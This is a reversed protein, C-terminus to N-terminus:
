ILRDSKNWKNMETPSVSREAPTKFEYGGEPDDTIYFPHYRSPRDPDQGGEVVFTYTQGRVVTVEPILLGNIFWSVGWGQNGTMSLYPFDYNFKSNSEKYVKLFYLGTIANYGQSGGTPGLHAYYVHNEPENCEIAPIYWPPRTLVAPTSPPPPPPPQNKAL